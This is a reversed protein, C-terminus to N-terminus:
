MPSTEHVGIWADAHNAFPCDKALEIAAQLSEAKIVTYGATDDAKMTVEGNKIKAESSGDFPNGADVTHEAISEFWAGWAMNMEETDPITQEVHYLIVYNKM